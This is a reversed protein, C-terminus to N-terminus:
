KDFSHGTWAGHKPEASNIQVPRVGSHRNGQANNLDVSLRDNKASWSPTSGGSATKSVTTSGYCKHDM